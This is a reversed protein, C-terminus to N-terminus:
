DVYARCWTEICALALLPYAADIQGSENRRVLETVAAPDFLGRERVTAEALMEEFYPKLEHSLWRRLPVGFGTKPRYIVDQPLIGEMARKFVWKGHGGRQRHRSPIQAAYDVVELDILPVRVEVGTAMSMKDTYNLNHDTLFYRCDLALMRSLDDVSPEADALFRAMSDLVRRGAMQERLSPSLLREIEGPALWLFYSAIRENGALDAYRFAKAVRRGAATTVPVNQTAERLLRRAPQPLWTWYKELPLARHRRYGTFVDDGGAGSLLVKIDNERALQSIFFANLAAPDAQPEDLQAIMWPFKKAMEPGVWVTHLDLGLEKAVRRAYPLDDPIGEEVLRHGKFGITFCQLRRPGCPERAFACVSSSDLGGSLFAGVPVDAVMQRHVAARVRERVGQVTRALSARGASNKLFPLQYFVVEAREGRENVTLAHGPLLKRVAALMTREGPTYLYALYEAIAMPDLERSLGPEKVLAKLESAFTLRRNDLSYYLPKVGLGDRALLLTRRRGDWIAFAFIGNLRPLMKPGLWLYCNLLVETDSTGRWEWAGNAPGAGSRDLEQRLERYNYIEGNFTIVVEGSADLMPQHGTPSLDIISLRRHALGVRNDASRWLGTDDPGRHRIARSMEELLKADVPSAFSLIGAIGCM